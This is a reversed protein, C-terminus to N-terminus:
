KTTFIKQGPYNLPILVEDNGFNVLTGSGVHRIAPRDLRMFLGNQRHEKIDKDLMVKDVHQLEEESAVWDHVFGSFVGGLASRGSLRNYVREADKLNRRYYVGQAMGIPMDIPLVDQISVDHSIREAADQMRLYVEAPNAAGTVPIGKTAEVFYDMIMKRTDELSVLQTALESSGIAQRVDQQTQEVAHQIISLGRQFTYAEDSNMSFSQAFRKTLAELGPTKQFQIDCLELYEQASKIDEPSMKGEFFRTFLAETAELQVWTQLQEQESLGRMFVGYAVQAGNDAAKVLNIPVRGSHIFSTIGFAIGGLAASQAGNLEGGITTLFEVESGFPVESSIRQTVEKFYHESYFDV